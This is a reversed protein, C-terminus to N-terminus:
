MWKACIGWYYCVGILMSGCGIVSGILDFDFDYGIL